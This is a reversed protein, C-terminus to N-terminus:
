RVEDLALFRKMDRVASVRYQNAKVPDNEDHWLQLSQRILDLLAVWVETLNEEVQMRLEHRTDDNMITGDERGVPGALNRRPERMGMAKREAARREGRDLDGAKNM